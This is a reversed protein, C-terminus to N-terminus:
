MCSESCYKTAKMIRNHGTPPPYVEISGTLWNMGKERSPAIGIYNCWITVEHQFFFDDFNNTFSMQLYKIIKTVDRIRGLWM